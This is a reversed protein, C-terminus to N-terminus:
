NVHEVGAKDVGMEWHLNLICNGQTNTLAGLIAWCVSGLLKLSGGGSCVSPYILILIALVLVEGGFGLICGEM